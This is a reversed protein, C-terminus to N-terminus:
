FRVAVGRLGGPLAQGKSVSAATLRTAVMNGQLARKLQLSIDALFGALEDKAKKSISDDHAVEVLLRKIAAIQDSIASANLRMTFVPLAKTNKECFAELKSLTEAGESTVDIKLVSM